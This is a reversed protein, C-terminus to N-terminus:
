GIEIITMIDSVLSTLIRNGSAHPCVPGRLLAADMVSQCPLRGLLNRRLQSLPPQEFSLAHPLRM